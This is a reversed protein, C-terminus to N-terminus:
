LGALREMAERYIERIAYFDERLIYENNQHETLERGPLMPGFGVIHDMARAYTGGGIVAPESDDGTMKRYVDLLAQIVKGNRDMYIPATNETVTLELGFRAAARRVPEIVAEAEFSVPNRVDLELVLRDGRVRVVGANMTLKGSKEDELACGIKEGHLASGIYSQYFSVLPDEPIEKELLEMMKTIANDGDEPTSAHASQGVTELQKGNVTARCWAPVMNGADGGRIDTLLSRSLPLSVEMGLIGKEGYIAPFDADPTFGFVPLEEHAKYWEMDTWVGSEENQGFIIRIRRKLKAGRDLLDKMAFICAVAPGKDDTVGRGYLRDGVETLDYAPYTWGEGAPVVDLHALIGVMEEGQGIEAWGVIGDRNVTTMGLSQCLRLAEQLAEGCGRGYPFEPSAEVGAVSEVRVLRALAEKMEEGSKM